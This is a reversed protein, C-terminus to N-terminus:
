SKGKDNSRNFELLQGIKLMASAVIRANESVNEQRGIQWLHSIKSVTIKRLFCQKIKEICEYVEKVIFMNAKKYGWLENHQLSLGLM